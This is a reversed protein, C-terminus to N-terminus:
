ARCALLSLGAHFKVANTGTEEPAYSLLPAYQNKTTYVMSKYVKEESYLDFYDFAALLYVLHTERGARCVQQIASEMYLFCLKSELRPIQGTLEIFLCCTM